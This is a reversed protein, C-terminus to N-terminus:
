LVWLALALINLMFYRRIPTMWTQEFLFGQPWFQGHGLPDNIKGIHMYYFSLFDEKLSGFSSSSLYKAHFMKYHIDVLNTWIFARPDFNAGDRLDNMKGIHTFSYCFNFFRRQFFEFLLLKSIVHILCSADELSHRWIQEFLLGPTLIPVAGPSM